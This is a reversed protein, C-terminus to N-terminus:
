WEKAAASSCRTNQIYENTQQLQVGSFDNVRRHLRFQSSSHVQQVSQIYPACLSYYVECESLKIWVQRGHLWTLTIARLRAYMAVYGGEVETRRKPLSEPKRAQM